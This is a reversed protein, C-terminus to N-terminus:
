GLAKALASQASRVAGEMFGQFDSFAEGCIHVNQPLGEALSFAELQESVEWPKVGARWLHVGARYPQRTWDRIGYAIVNEASTKIREAFVLPLRQDIGIEAKDHCLSTVYGKWFNISPRDCYAMVMGKNDQKYYHLERAPFGQVGRNPLNEDWWPERVVFFCKLLPIEIVSDLLARISDPIGTIRKVSYPPIALIVQSATVKGTDFTLTLRKRGSPAIARLSHRTYVPIGKDKVKALMRDTILQMGGKVGKLHPSMQLMKVWTIMSGAVGPNEHIEHYFSGDAMIYKIADYSIVDSFAQWIGQKWLCRGRHRGERRAHELEEDTMAMMEADTKHLVRAIAHAYLELANMGKERRSLAYQRRQVAPPSSYEPFPETELGLEELLAKMMHQRDPDFRMSGYEAQFGATDVTELKGGVRESAEFLAISPGPPARLCCYLGAIGGGVVAIDYHELTKM